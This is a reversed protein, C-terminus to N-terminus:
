SVEFVGRLVPLAEAGRFDVSLMFSKGGMSTIMLSLLLTFILSSNRSVNFALNLYSCDGLFVSLFTTLNDLTLISM